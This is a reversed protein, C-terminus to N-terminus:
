AGVAVPRDLGSWQSFSGPYLRADFGALSLAAVLHAATVGSGCYAAVPVGEAVGLEAFRARLTAPSEFTGDPRLSGANPASVAGPIHGAKPDIPEVEGTFRESARADLLVGSAPFGAVEDVDLVGLSGTQLTVQGPTPTVEDTSLPLGAARWAPLAGDLIRVDALGAWRLLWWARAASQNSAGDYVVVTDGDDIGWRRAATTLTEVDPLPHRGLEAAPAAALETDLDVYVAGPLHGQRYDVRGDPLDLAWRVDLVVPPRDSHLLDSLETPSILLSM